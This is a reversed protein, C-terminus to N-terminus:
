DLFRRAAVAYTTEAYRVYDEDIMGGHVTTFDTRWEDWWLHAWLHMSYMGSYDEDLAEFLTRVGVPDAGHRHFCRKPLVRVADPMARRVLTAEQCSHRSWTGDFVEYMRELWRALYASDPRALMLANCLSQQMPDPQEAADQEAGIVFQERYLEAPMPQLFLTDMDAYVGGWTSLAKLRIFDSEHAYVLDRRKVIRGEETNAYRASDRVFPEPDVRHLTLAPRIRDWWRGWPENLCHFHIAEPRNVQRCSELCLYHLLHFPEDQPRLGFVFHFIRPIETM